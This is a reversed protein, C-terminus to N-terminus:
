IENKHNTIVVRIEAEHPRTIFITVTIENALDPKQQPLSAGRVAREIRVTTLGNNAAISGTGSANMGSSPKVGISHVRTSALSRSKAFDCARSEFIKQWAVGTPISAVYRGSGAVGM